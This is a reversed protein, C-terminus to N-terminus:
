KYSTKSIYTFFLVRLVAIFDNWILWLCLFNLLNSKFLFRATFTNNSFISEPCNLKISSSDLLSYIIISGTHSFQPHSVILCVLFICQLYVSFCFISKYGYADVRPFPLLLCIKSDYPWRLQLPEKPVWSDNLRHPLISSRFYCNTM